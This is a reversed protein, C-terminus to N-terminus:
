ENFFEIEVESWFALHNLESKKTPLSMVFYYWPDSPTGEYKIWSMYALTQIIYGLDEFFEM